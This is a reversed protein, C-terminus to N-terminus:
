SIYEFALILAGIVISSIIFAPFIDKLYDLVDDVLVNQREFVRLYLFILIIAGVVAIQSIFMAILYNM